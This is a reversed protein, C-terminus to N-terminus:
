FQKIPQAVMSLKKGNSPQNILLNNAQDSPRCIGLPWTKPCVYVLGCQGGIVVPALQFVYCYVIIQWIYKIDDIAEEDFGVCFFSLM